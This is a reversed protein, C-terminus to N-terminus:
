PYKLTYLTDVKLFPYREMKPYFSLLLVGGEISSVGEHISPVTVGNKYVHHGKLSLSSKMFLIPCGGRALSLVRHEYIPTLLPIYPCISIYLPM